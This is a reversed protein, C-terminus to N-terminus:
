SVRRIKKRNGPLSDLYTQLDHPFVVWSKGLKFGTIRGSQLAKYLFDSGCGLIERVESFHMLKEPQKQM